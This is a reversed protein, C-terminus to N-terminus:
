AGPNKVEGLIFFPRYQTVQVAVDPSKIARASLRESLKQQFDNVSLGQAQLQGALSMSITGSDSIRYTGALDTDGFVTVQLVDGPGLLYARPANSALAPLRGPAGACGSLLMPIAALLALLIRWRPATFPLLLKM